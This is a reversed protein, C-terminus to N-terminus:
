EKLAKNISLNPNIMYGISFEIIRENTEEIWIYSKAMNSSPLRHNTWLLSQIHMINLHDWKDETQIQKNQYGVALLYKEHNDITFLVAKIVKRSFM